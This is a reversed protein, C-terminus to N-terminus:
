KNTIILTCNCLIIQVAIFLFLFGKTNVKPKKSKTTKKADSVSDEVEMADEDSNKESDDM